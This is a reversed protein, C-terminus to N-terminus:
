KVISKLHNWYKKKMELDNDLIDMSPACVVQVTGLVFTDLPSRPIRDLKKQIDVGHMLVYKIQPFIAPIDKIFDPYLYENVIIRQEPKLSLKDCMANMKFSFKTQNDNLIDDNAIILLKVSSPIEPYAILGTSGATNDEKPISFNYYQPILFSSILM